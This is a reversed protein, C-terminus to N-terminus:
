KNNPEKVQCIAQREEILHNLIESKHGQLLSDIDEEDQTNVKSIIINPLLEHLKKSITKNAKRGAKDSDM